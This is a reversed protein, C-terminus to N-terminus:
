CKPVQQATKKKTVMPTTKKKRREEERASDVVRGKMKQEKEKKWVLGSSGEM